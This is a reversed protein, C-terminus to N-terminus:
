EDQSDLYANLQLVQCNKSKQSHEIDYFYGSLFVWFLESYEPFEFDMTFKLKVVVDLCRVLSPLKYRLKETVVYFCEIHQVTGVAYIRPSFQVDKSKLEQMQAEVTETFERETECLSCTDIQAQLISSYRKRGKRAPKIIGHFAACMVFDRTDQSYDGDELIGVLQRSHDDHIDGSMLYAYFKECFWEWKTFIKGEKDAMEFLYNYDADVLLYGDEDLYRPWDAFVSSKNMNKDLQISRMRLLISKKWQGLVQDGPACNNRLWVRCSELRRIEPKSLQLATRKQELRFSTAEEPTDSENHVKKRNHFRDYLLGSPNKKKLTVNRPNFYTVSIEPSFREAILESFRLMDPITFYKQRALYYDVVTHALYKRHTNDLRNHQHFYRVVMKGKENRELISDLVAKSVNTPILNRRPSFCSSDSTSATQDNPHPKPKYLVSDKWLVLKQRLAHKYATWETKAFVDNLAAEDLRKVYEISYGHAFLIENIKRDLGWSTILCSLEDDTSDDTDTNGEESLEADLDEELVEVIEVLDM